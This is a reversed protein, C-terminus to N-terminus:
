SATNPKFKSSVESCFSAKRARDFNLMTNRFFTFHCLMWALWRQFWSLAPRPVFQENGRTVLVVKGILDEIHVPSDNELVCDGRTVVHTASRATVRHVVWRDNRKVAVVDGNNIDVTQATDTRTEVRQITLVDGPWICPLMSLGLARIQVRGSKILLQQALAHKPSEFVQDGVFTGTM